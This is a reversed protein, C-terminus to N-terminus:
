VLYIITGEFVTDNELDTTTFARTESGNSQQRYLELLTTNPLVRGLPLSDGPALNSYTKTILVGSSITSNQAIFPLNGLIIAEKEKPVKNVKFKFNCTVLSGLRYFEGYEETLSIAGDNLLVKWTGSEEVITPADPSIGAPGQPGQPGQPGAPGPPGPVSPTVLSIYDNDSYYGCSSPLFNYLIPSITQNM